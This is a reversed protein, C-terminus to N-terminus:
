EALSHLQTITQTTSRGPLLPLFVIKAHCAELAQREQPHLTALSYDSSKVYVDPQIYSLERACHTGEFLLVGDVCQLANLLYLRENQSYIPRCNGKLGRISADSNVGVWLIAGQQKAAELAMVHGAHLLDFCGNTFVLTERQKRIKERLASCEPLLIQKSVPLLRNADYTQRKKM